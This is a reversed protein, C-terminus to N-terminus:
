IMGIPALLAAVILQTQTMQLESKAFVVAVNSFTTLCDSLLFWGLLFLFIQSLDKASKITCIVAILM